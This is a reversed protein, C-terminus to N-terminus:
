PSVNAPEEESEQVGPRLGLKAVIAAIAMVSAM